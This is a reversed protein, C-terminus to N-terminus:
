DLNTVNLCVGKICQSSTAQSEDFKILFDDNILKYVGNEDKKVDPFLENVKAELDEGSQNKQHFLLCNLDNGRPYSYIGYNYTLELVFSEDENNWGVMSKSWFGAYPGNCSAECAEEFEEHRLSRAGLGTLLRLAEKLDSVKVVWHLPRIPQTFQVKDGGEM